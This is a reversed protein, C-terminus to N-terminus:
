EVERMLSEEVLGLQSIVSDKQPSWSGPARHRSWRQYSNGEISQFVQAQPITKGSSLSLAPFCYFMDLQASPYSSPIEIAVSCEKHTYGEPLVYNEIILWRKGDVVTKWTMNSERLFLEDKPLLSFVKLTLPAEGNNIKGPTIRLREIGPRTLDIYDCLSVQEKPEGKVKLIIIWDQEPDIGAQTLADRVLINPSDSKILVGHVDLKWSKKRSYLREIGSTSLDITEDADVERDAEDRRELWVSQSKNIGGLKRLSQEDVERFWAYREDNLIFYHIRDVSASFFEHVDNLDVIEDLGVERSPGNKPLLILAFEVAPRFGAANLIQEATPTFDKLEVVRDNVIIEIPASKRNETSM